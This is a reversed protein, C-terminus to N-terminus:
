VFHSVCLVYLSALRAAWLGMDDALIFLVNPPACVGVRALLLGLFVLPPLLMDVVVMSFIDEVVALLVRAISIFLRTFVVHAYNIAGGRKTYLLTYVFPIISFVYIFSFQYLNGQVSLPNWM